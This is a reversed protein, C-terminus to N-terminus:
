PNDPTWGTLAETNRIDVLRVIIRPMIQGHSVGIEELLDVILARKGEKNKFIDSAKEALLMTVPIFM